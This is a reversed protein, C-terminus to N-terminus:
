GARRGSLRRLLGGVNPRRPPTMALRRRLADVMPGITGRLRMENWCLTFFDRAEYVDRWRLRRIMSEELPTDFCRADDIGATLMNLRTLVCKKCTGCNRSPDPGEWCVKIADIVEPYAKLMEFKDARGFSGGDTFVTFWGNSALSDFIPPHSLGMRLVNYPAGASVLGVANQKSFMALANATLPIASEPWCADDLKRIDTVVTLLEVGARKVIPEARQKMLAFRDAQDLKADFGHVMVAASVAHSAAGDLKLAHRILTFSSDLGGSVACVASNNSGGPRHLDVVSDAKVETQRGFRWPNLSHRISVLQGLNFLGARSMPGHVVLDRDTHSAILALGCVYSDVVPPLDLGPCGVARWFVTQRDPGLSPPLNELVLRHESGGDNESAEFWVHISKGADSM